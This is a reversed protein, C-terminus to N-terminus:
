FVDMIYILHLVQSVGADKFNESYLIQMVVTLNIFLYVGIKWSEVSRVSKKEYRRSEVHIILRYM